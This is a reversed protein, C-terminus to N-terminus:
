LGTSTLLGIVNISSYLVGKAYSSVSNRAPFVHTSSINLEKPISDRMPISIAQVKVVQWTCCNLSRMIVFLYNVVQISDWDTNVALSCIYNDNVVVQVDGDISM